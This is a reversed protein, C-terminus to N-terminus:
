VVFSFPAGTTLTLHVDRWDEDSVNDVIAWSQLLAGEKDDLVLKYTSRWSPAPVAYSLSVEGRRSLTLELDVDGSTGRPSLAAVAGVATDGDRSLVALTKLVDDVEHRRLALKLRDEKLRGTREFYGMGSRYLVVNRLALPSSTTCGALALVLALWSTRM